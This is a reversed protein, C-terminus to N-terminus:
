LKEIVEAIKAASAVEIVDEAPFLAGGFYISRNNQVSPERRNEPAAFHIQNVRTYSVISAANPASWHPSVGASVEGYVTKRAATDGAGTKTALVVGGRRNGFALGIKEESDSYARATDYFTIGADLAKRLLTVADPVSVRQIPLAGFGDRPVTLGTRGLRVTTFM